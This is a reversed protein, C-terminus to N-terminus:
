WWNRRKTSSKTSTFSAIQRSRGTSLAASVGPRRASFFFNGRDDLRLHRPFDLTQGLAEKLVALCQAV